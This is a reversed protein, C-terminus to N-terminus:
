GFRKRAAALRANLASISYGKGLRLGAPDIGQLLDLLTECNTKNNGSLFESNFKCAMAIARDIEVAKSPRGRTSVADRAEHLAEASLVVIRVFEIDGASIRDENWHINGIIIQEPDIPEPSPIGNRFGIAVLSGTELKERVIRKLENRAASLSAWRGISGAVVTMIATAAVRANGAPDFPIGEPPPAGELARYARRDEAPAHALWAECLPTGSRWIERLALKVRGM